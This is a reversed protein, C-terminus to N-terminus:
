MTIPSDTVVAMSLDSVIYTRVCPYKNPPPVAPHTSAFLSLASEDLVTSSMSLPGRASVHAEPTGNNEVSKSESLEAANFRVLTICSSSPRLIDRIVPPVSPPVDRMLEITYIRPRGASYSAQAAAPLRPHAHSSMFFYKKFDSFAM